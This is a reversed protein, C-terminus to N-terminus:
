EKKVGIIMEGYSSFDRPVPIKQLQKKPIWQFGSDSILVGQPKLKQFVISEYRQGPEEGKFIRFAKEFYIDYEPLQPLSTFVNGQHFYLKVLMEKWYFVIGGKMQAMYKDKPLKIMVAFSVGVDDLVTKIIGLSYDHDLFIFNVEQLPSFLRELYLLPSLIDAGCGPYFLTPNELFLTIKQKLHADLNNLKEYDGAFIFEKLKNENFSNKCAGRATVKREQFVIVEGM